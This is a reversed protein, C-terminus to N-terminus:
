QLTEEGQALTKTEKDETGNKYLEVKDIDGLYKDMFEEAQQRVLKRVELGWKRTDKQSVNTELGIHLKVEHPRPNRMMRTPIHETTNVEEQPLVALGIIELEILRKSLEKYNKKTIKSIGTFMGLHILAETVPNLMFNEGEKKNPNTNEIWCLDKHNEIKTIDWTLGM